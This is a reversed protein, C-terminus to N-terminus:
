NSLVKRLLRIIMEYNKKKVFVIHDFYIKCLRREKEM